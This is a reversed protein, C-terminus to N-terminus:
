RSLLISATGKDIIMFGEGGDIGVEEGNTLQYRIPGPTLITILPAHDALVGIEGDAARAALFTAQGGFLEKEPMLINLKFPKM